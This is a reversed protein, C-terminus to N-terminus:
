IRITATVYCSFVDMGEGNKYNMIPPMRRCTPNRTTAICENRAQAIVSEAADKVEQKKTAATCDIPLANVKVTSTFDMRAPADAVLQQEISELRQYLRSADAKAARVDDLMTSAHAAVTTAILVLGLVSLVSTKM